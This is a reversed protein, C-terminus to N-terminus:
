RPARWGLDSRWIVDIIVGGSGDANEVPIGVACGGKNPKVTKLYGVGRIEQHGTKWGGPQPLYKWGKDIKFKEELLRRLLINKPVDARVLAKSAL